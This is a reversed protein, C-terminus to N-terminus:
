AGDSERNTSRKEERSEHYRAWANPGEIFHPLADLISFLGIIILGHGIRVRGRALDERFTRSVESVGILVLAVGKALITIPNEVFSEIERALKDARGGM